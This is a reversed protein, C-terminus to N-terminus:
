GSWNSKQKVNGTSDYTVVVIGVSKYRLWPLPPIFGFYYRYTTTSEGGAEFISRTKYGRLVAEVTSRPMGVQVRSAYGAMLNPVGLRERAEQEQHRALVGDAVVALVLIVIVWILLSKRAKM